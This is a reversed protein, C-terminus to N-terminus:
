ENELQENDSLPQNLYNLEYYNEGHIAVLFFFAMLWPQTYFVYFMCDVAYMLGFVLFVLFMNDKYRRYRKWQVVLFKLLLTM